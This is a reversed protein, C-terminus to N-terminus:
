SWTFNTFNYLAPFHLVDKLMQLLRSRWLFYHFFLYCCECPLEVDRLLHVFPIYGYAVIVFAVLITLGKAQKKTNLPSLNVSAQKLFEYLQL